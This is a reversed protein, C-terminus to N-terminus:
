LFSNLIGDSFNSPILRIDPRIIRGKKYRTCYGAPYRIQIAPYGGSVPFLRIDLKNLSMGTCTVM